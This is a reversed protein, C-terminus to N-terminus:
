AEGLKKAGNERHEDAKSHQTDSHIFTADPIM